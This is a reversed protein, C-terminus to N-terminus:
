LCVAGYLRRIKRLDRAAAALRLMRHDSVPARADAIRRECLMKVFVLQLVIVGHLIRQLGNRIALGIGRIQPLFRRLVLREGALEGAEDRIARDRERRARGHRHRLVRIRRQEGREVLFDRVHPLLDRVARDGLFPLLEQLVLGDARIEVVIRLVEKEARADDSGGPFNMGSKSPLPKM